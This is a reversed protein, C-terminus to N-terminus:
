ALRAAAVDDAAVVLAFLREVRQEDFHVAEAGVAAHNHQGGRVARFRKIRREHSRPTEIALHDDIPGVYATALFDEVHMHVPHLEIFRDVQLGYGLHGRAERAGVQRVKHVLRRQQGRTLPLGGDAHVIKVLADIAYRRAHLLFVAHNLGVFFLPHGVVFGPVRQRRDRQWVRRGHM